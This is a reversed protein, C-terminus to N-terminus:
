DIIKIILTQRHDSDDDNDHEKKHINRQEQKATAKMNLM